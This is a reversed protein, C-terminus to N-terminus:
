VAILEALAKVLFWLGFALGLVIKVPRGYATLWALLRASAADARAPWIFAALVLAIQISGALVVFALFAGVAGGPELGAEGIAAVAGLTFVWFKPGVAVVGAGMLYARGPGLGDLLAMWAPPPADEDPEEILARAAMVLLAIAVVLLVLSLVLRAEGPDDDSFTPSLVVGFAIGQLLRTTTQGALWAAAAVRGGRGQLLLVAVLIHIPVVASGIALPLVTLILESVGAM